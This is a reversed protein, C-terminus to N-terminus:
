NKVVSSKHDQVKKHIFRFEINRLMISVHCKQLLLKRESSRHIFTKFAFRCVRRVLKGERNKCEMGSAM